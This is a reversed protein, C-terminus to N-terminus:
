FAEGIRKRLEERKKEAEKRGEATDKTADLILGVIQDMKQGDEKEIREKLKEFLVAKHAWFAMQMLRGELLDYRDGAGCGCSGGECTDYDEMTEGM